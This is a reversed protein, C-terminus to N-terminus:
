GDHGVFAATEHADAGLFDPDDLIKTLEFFKEIGTKVADRPRQLGDHSAHRQSDLLEIDQAFGFGLIVYTM